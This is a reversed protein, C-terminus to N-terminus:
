AGKVPGQLFRALADSDPCRDTAHTQREREEPTMTKPATM